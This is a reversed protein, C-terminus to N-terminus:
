LGGATVEAAHSPCPTEPDGEWAANRSRRPETGDVNRLVHALPVERGGAM